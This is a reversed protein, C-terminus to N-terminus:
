GIRSTLVGHLGVQLIDVDTQQQAGAAVGPQINVWFRNNASITIEKNLMHIPQAQSLISNLVINAAGTTQILPLSIGMLQSLTAQYMVTKDTIWFEVATTALWSLILLADATAKTAKPIYRISIGNFSFKQSNPIQGPAPMNTQDLRTYNVDGLQATFIKTAVVDNKVTYYSYYTFSKEEGGVPAFTGQELRVQTRDM